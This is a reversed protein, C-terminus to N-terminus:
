DMGSLKIVLKPLNQESHQLEQELGGYSLWIAATVIQMYYWCIEAFWSASRIFYWPCQNRLHGTDMQMFKCLLVQLFDVQM